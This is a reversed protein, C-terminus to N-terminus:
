KRHDQFLYLSRIRTESMRGDAFLLIYTHCYILTKQWCFYLRVFRPALMGSHEPEVYFSTQDSKQCFPFPGPFCAAPLLLIGRCTSKDYLWTRRCTMQRQEQRARGSRERERKGVIDVGVDSRNLREPFSKISRTLLALYNSAGNHMQIYL